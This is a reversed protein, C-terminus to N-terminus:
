PLQCNLRCLSRVVSGKLPEKRPAASLTPIRPLASAVEAIISEDRANGCCLVHAQKLLVRDMLPGPSLNQSSDWLQHLYSGLRECASEPPFLLRCRHHLRLAHWTSKSFFPCRDLSASVGSIDVSNQISVIQVIKRKHCHKSHIVAVSGERPNFVRPERRKDRKRNRVVLMGMNSASVFFTDFAAKPLM